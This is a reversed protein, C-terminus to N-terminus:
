SGISSPLHTFRSWFVISAQSLGVSCCLCTQHTRVLVHFHPYHAIRIHTFNSAVPPNDTFSRADFTRSSTSVFLILYHGTSTLFSLLDHWQPLHSSSLPLLLPRHLSSTSAKSPHSSVLVFSITSQAQGEYRMDQNRSFLVVASYCYDLEYLVHVCTCRESTSM